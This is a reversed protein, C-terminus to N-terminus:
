IEFLADWCVLASAWCIGYECLVAKVICSLLLFSFFKTVFCIWRRVFFSFGLLPPMKFRDACFLQASLGIKSARFRARIRICGWSAFRPTKEDILSVDCHFVINDGVSHLFFAILETVIQLGSRLFIAFLVVIPGVLRPSRERSFLDWNNM